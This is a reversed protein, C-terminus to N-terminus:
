NASRQFEQHSRLRRRSASVLKGSTQAVVYSMVGYTGLVALVLAAFRFAGLLQAGFRRETLLAAGDNVLVSQAKV